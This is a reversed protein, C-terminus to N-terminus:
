AEATRAARTLADRADDTSGFGDFYLNLLVRRFGHAPDRFGPHTEIAQLARDGQCLIDAGCPSSASALRCLSSTSTSATTGTTSVQLPNARRDAVMVFMVIGAGGLVFLPVADVLAGLKPVLGM